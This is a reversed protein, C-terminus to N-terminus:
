LSGGDETKWIGGSAAGAYYVHPDGPIGVVSTVRNGVPGIHRYRLSKFIKPDIKEAYIQGQILIFALLMLFFIMLFKPFSAWKKQVM